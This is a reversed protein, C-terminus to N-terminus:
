IVRRCRSNYQRFQCQKRPAAKQMKKKKDLNIPIGLSANWGSVKSNFLTNNTKVGNDTVLSERNSGIGTIYNVNVTFRKTSNSGAEFALGTVLATSTNGARYLTAPQNNIKETTLSAQRFPNVALGVSPIISVFWSKNVAPKKIEPVSSRAMMMSKYKACRSYAQSTQVPAPILAPKAASMKKFFIPKTRAQLGGQLQMQVNGMAASFNQIASEPNSFSYAITSRSTSVGIYPGFGLKTKYDLRLGLMPSVQSSLPNFAALDNISLRTFANELGVQPQLTLKQATAGIAFFLLFAGALTSKKM